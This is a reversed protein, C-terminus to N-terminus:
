MRVADVIVGVAIFFLGVSFCKMFIHSQITTESIVGLYKFAEVLLAAALPVGLIVAAAISRAIADAGAEVIGIAGCGSVVEDDIRRHDTTM